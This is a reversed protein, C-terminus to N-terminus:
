TIAWQASEPNGKKEEGSPIGVMKRIQKISNGATVGRGKRQPM